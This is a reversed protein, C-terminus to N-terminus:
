ANKLVKKRIKWVIPLPVPLQDVKDMVFIVQYTRLRTGGDICTFQIERPRIYIVSSIVQHSCATSPPFEWPWEVQPRLLVQRDINFGHVLNTEDQQLGPILHIDSSTLLPINKQNSKLIEQCSDELILCYVKKHVMWHVSKKLNRNKYCKFLVNKISIYLSIFCHLSITLNRKLKIQNEEASKFVQLQM